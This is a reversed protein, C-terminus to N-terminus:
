KRTQRMESAALLTVYFDLPIDLNTALIAKVNGNIWNSKKHEEWRQKTKENEWKPPGFAGSYTLRLPVSLKDFLFINARFRDRRIKELTGKRLFFGEELDQIEAKDIELLSKKVSDNIRSKLVNKGGFLRVAKM